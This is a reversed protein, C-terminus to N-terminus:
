SLCLQERPGGGERFLLHVLVGLCSVSGCSVLSPPPPFVFLDSDLHPLGGGGRDVVGSGTTLGNTPTPGPAPMDPHAPSGDPRRRGGRTSLARRLDGGFGTGTSGPALFAHCRRSTGAARGLQLPQFALVPHWLVFAVALIALLLWRRGCM